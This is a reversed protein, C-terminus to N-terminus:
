TAGQELFPYPIEFDRRSELWGALSLVGADDFRRGAIQIGIPTGTTPSLTVPLCIAPQTTLNFWATFGLHDLRGGGGPGVVEAPFGVVPLVPSLVYDYPAIIARLRAAAANSAAEARLYTMADHRGAREIELRFSELVLGQRQAPLSHLEFAAKIDYYLCMAALDAPSFPAEQIATITAGARRLVEAQDDLARMVEPEVAPGYGVRSWLGIHMGAPSSLPEGAAYRGPLSLPDAADYAGIVGLLAQADAVSRAMPGAVGILKPPDYAVRGQTPKFGVVGCQSGPLRVSGGMDTGVALPGVGCALLVAAGSSSGGPSLAPAWPNRIIGFQSSLGSGMQGFDPMTTKAFLVAGAERLRKVPAGDIVATPLHDYARSGHWRQLGAINISDKVSVPVGDLLGLPTGDRYRQSSAQAAALADRANLVSVAQYLRGAREAAAMTTQAVEVPDLRRSCYAAVLETVGAGIIRPRTGSAM